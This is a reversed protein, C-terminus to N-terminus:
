LIIVRVTAAVHDANFFNKCIGGVRGISIIQTPIQENHITLFDRRTVNREWAPPDSSPKGM